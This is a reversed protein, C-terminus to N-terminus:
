LPQRANYRRISVVVGILVIPVLVDTWFWSGANGSAFNDTLVMERVHGIADGWLWVTAAIVAALRFGFDGWFALVGLMGVTLDAIGVEYQFPSVAWGINAASTAPFFVHMVFTYLGTVGVALLLMWKLLTEAFGVGGQGRRLAAIALSAVLMVLSFDGLFGRILSEIM